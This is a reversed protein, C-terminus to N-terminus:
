AMAEQAATMYIVLIITPSAKSVSLSWQGSVSLRARGVWEAVDTEARGM